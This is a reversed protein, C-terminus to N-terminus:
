WAQPGAVPHYGVPLDVPHLVGMGASWSARRPCSKIEQPSRSSMPAVARCPCTTNPGRHTRQHLAASLVDALAEVSLVAPLRRLRHTINTLTPRQPTTHDTGIQVWGLFESIFIASSSASNFVGVLSLFLNSSFLQRLRNRKAINSHYRPERTAVLSANLDGEGHRVMTLAPSRMKLPRPRDDSPLHKPPSRTLLESAQRELELTVQSLLLEKGYICSFSM